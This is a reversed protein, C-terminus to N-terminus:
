KIPYYGLYVLVLSITDYSGHFIIPLWLNKRSLLFLGCSVVAMLMAEIAVVMGQYHHGFFGFVISTFVIALGWSLKSEGFLDTIRKLLYGRYVM